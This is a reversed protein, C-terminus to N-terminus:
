LHCLGRGGSQQQRGQHEHLHNGHYGPAALSRFEARCEDTAKAATYLDVEGSRLMEMSEAPTKDYGVYDFTCQMHKSLDQMMEYGYGSRRGNEDQIHYCDAAYFAVKYVPTERRPM